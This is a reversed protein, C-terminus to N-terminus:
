ILADTNGQMRKYIKYISSNAFHATSASDRQLFKWYFATRLIDRAPIPSATPDLEADWADTGKSHPIEEHQTSATLKPLPTAADRVEPVLLPRLGLVCFVLAHGPQGIM